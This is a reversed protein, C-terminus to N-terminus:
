DGSVGVFGSEVACIFGDIKSSRFTGLSLLSEKSANLVDALTAYGHLLREAEKRSAGLTNLADTAIEFSTENVAKLDEIPSEQTNFLCILWRSAEEYDFALILNMGNSTVLSTLRSIVLDPNEDNVLLLLIRVPFSGRFAEIRSGLYDPHQRHYKLALFLVAVNRGIEYDAIAADSWQTEISSLLPILPNLKQRHSITLPLKM